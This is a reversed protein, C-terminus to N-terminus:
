VRWISEPLSSIRDILLRLAPTVRNKMWVLGIRMSLNPQLPLYVYDSSAMWKGNTLVVGQQPTLQALAQTVTDFEATIHSPPVDRLLLSSQSSFHTSDRYRFVLENKLEEPSIESRQAWPHDRHVCAYATCHFLVRKGFQSSSYVSPDIDSFILDVDGAMLRHINQAADSLLVSHLHLQEDRGSLNMVSFFAKCEGIVMVAPFGIRLASSQKFPLLSTHAHRFANRLSQAEAAFVKGAPTLVARQNDRVFLAVGLESELTKIRHTIAPQSMYLEQAAGSFSGRQLIALFTNIQEENM